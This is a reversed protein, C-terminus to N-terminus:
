DTPKVGDVHAPTDAEREPADCEDRDRAEVVTTRSRRGGRRYLESDAGLDGTGPPRDLDPDRISATGGVTLPGLEDRERDVRRM